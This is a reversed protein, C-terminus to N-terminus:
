DYFSIDIDQDLIQERTIDKRMSSNVCESPQPLSVGFLERSEKHTMKFSKFGLMTLIGRMVPIPNAIVVESVKKHLAFRRVGELLYGSANKLGCNTSKLLPADIGTRIGMACCVKKDPSLWSYIHGHYEGCDILVIAYIEVNFEEYTPYRTHKTADTDRSLADLFGDYMKKYAQCVSNTKTYTRGIWKRNGFASYDINDYNFYTCISTDAPTNVRHMIQSLNLWNVLIQNQLVESLYESTLDAKTWILPTEVLDAINTYTFAPKYPPDSNKHYKFVHIKVNSDLSLM